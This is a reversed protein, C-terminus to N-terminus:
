IAFRPAMDVHPNVGAEGGEVTARAGSTRAQFAHAVVWLGHTSTKLGMTGNELETIETKASELECSYGTYGFSSGKVEMTMGTISTEIAHEWLIEDISKAHAGPEDENSNGGYVLVRPSVYTHNQAGINTHLEAGVVTYDVNGLITNGVNGSTTLTQNGNVERTENAMIMTTVNVNTTEMLSGDVQEWRDGHVLKCEAGITGALAVPTAITPFALSNPNPLMQDTGPDAVARGIKTKGDFVAAM